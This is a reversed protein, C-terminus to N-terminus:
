SRVAEALLSASLGCVYYDGDHFPPYVRMLPTRASCAIVKIAPFNKSIVEAMQAGDEVDLDLVVVDPAVAVLRKLVSQADGDRGGESPGFEDAVFEVGQEDLVDRLGIAAIAGFGGILVRSM